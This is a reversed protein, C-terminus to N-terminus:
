LESIFVVETKSENLSWSSNFALFVYFSEFARKHNKYYLLIKSDSQIIEIFYSSTSSCVLIEPFVLRMQDFNEYALFDVYTLKQGLFWVGGSKELKKEFDELKPISVKVFNDKAAQLYDLNKCRFVTLTIV